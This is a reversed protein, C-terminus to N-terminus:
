AIEYTKMKNLMSKYSINLLAAAKKRNWNTSELAKRMLQKETRCAFRDCISKLSRNGSTRFSNHIEVLDPMTEMDLLRHLDKRGEKRSSISGIHALIQTEDGSSAFRDMACKLEDLNGPWHHDLIRNRSWNSPIIFCRNMRACATIIFYDMLLAIDEKRQRLKPLCLSLVNLRYYLDKRFCSRQVMYSLDVESTAIIRIGPGHEMNPGSLCEAGEDLLLLVESQATEDLLNIKHLLINIPKPLYPDRPVLGCATGYDGNKFLFGKIIGEPKITECDLKILLADKDAYQVIRRALLEKGTGAEGTILVPDCSHALSPLMANINRIFATEGIFLESTIPPNATRHQANGHNILQDLGGEELELPLCQVMASLGPLKFNEANMANSLIFLRADIKSAQLAFIFRWAVARSDTRLLIASPEISVLNDYCITENEFCLIRRNKKSLLSRFFDREFSSQAYVIIPMNNNM